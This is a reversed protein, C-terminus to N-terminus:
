REFIILLLRAKTLQFGAISWKWQEPSVENILVLFRRNTTSWESYILELFDRLLKPTQNATNPRDRDVKKFNYRLMKKMYTKITYPSYREELENFIAEGIRWIPTPAWPPKIVEIIIKHANMSISSRIPNAQLNLDIGHNVSDKM